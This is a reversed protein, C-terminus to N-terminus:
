NICVMRYVFPCPTDMLCQKKYLKQFKSTEKSYLVGSIAELQTSIQFKRVSYEGKPSAKILNGVLRRQHLEGVLYFM